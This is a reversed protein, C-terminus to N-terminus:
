AFLRHGRDDPHNIGNRLLTPYPIGERWLHEWRGTADALAVGRQAAMERLWYVYPRCEATRLDDTGMMELMTFHPTVLVAEAGLDAIRRLIDDYTRDFTPRDM